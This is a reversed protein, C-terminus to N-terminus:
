SSIRPTVPPHHAHIDLSYGIARELEAIARRQGAMLEIERIQTQIWNRQADLPLLPTADGAQLAKQAQVLMTHQTPLMRQQWNEVSVMAQIWRTHAQRVELVIQDRVTVYRRIAVDLAADAMAIRGQNQDFLPLTFELGPGSQFGQGGGNNIDFIGLLMYIEKRALGARAGAAEFALEAARIDPRIALADAVLEEVHRNITPMVSTPNLRLPTSEFSLGMLSRFQERVLAVEQTFQHINEEAQLVGIKSAGADLESIEGAKWRSENIQAIQGLVDALETLLVLRHEALTLNAGAVKVDRVLNLGHQILREATQSLNHQAASVRQPRFWLAEVPFRAAFELQKPGVPFLIWFTPNQLMHAQIVEGKAIGLGALTEQFLANNWMAVTIAEELSIGDDLSVGQPIVTDKPTAKVGSRYGTEVEIRDITESYDQPVNVCGLFLQALPILAVFLLKELSKKTSSSHPLLQESQHTKVFNQNPLMLRVHFSRDEELRMTMPIGLVKCYAKVLTLGLGVRETRTRSPDKQWFPESLFELDTPSLDTCPNILELQYSPEKECLQCLITSGAPSYAIANSILNDIIASLITRDSNTIIQESINFSSVIKKAEAERAHSKWSDQVLTAIDLPERKLQPAKKEIQNLMTLIELLRGIRAVLELADEFYARASPSESASKAEQLAVENLLRLEAIPTRLEHAVNANFRRERNFSAELSHLLANFQNCLPILETPLHDGRLRQTMATPAIAKVQDTFDRLQRFSRNVTIFVVLVAGLILLAGILLSFSVELSLIRDLDDRSKAFALHVPQGPDDPGYGLWQKEENSQPFFSLVAMRGHQGNPLLCDQIEVQGLPVDPLPLEVKQLSLSRSLIKGDASWLQLYGARGWPFDGQLILPQGNNPLLKVVTQLDNVLEEDFHKLDLTKIYTFVAINGLVCLVALSLCLSIILQKRLSKTNIPQTM